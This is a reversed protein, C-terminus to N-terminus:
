FGSQNLRELALKGPQPQGQFSATLRTDM